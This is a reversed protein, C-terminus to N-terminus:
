TCKCVTRLFKVVIDDVPSKTKAARKEAEQLISCLLENLADSMTKKEKRITKEKGAM